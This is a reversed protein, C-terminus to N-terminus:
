RNKDQDLLATAFLVLSYLRERVAGIREMNPPQIPTRTTQNGVFLGRNIEIMLGVYNPSGPLTHRHADSTYHRLIYGGYFPQNLQVVPVPEASVPELLSLDAFLEHAKAGVMRVFEPPATLKGRGPVYEGDPGGNNSICILPRPQGPDGYATPGQQAMNHCDLFLTTRGAKQHLLQDLSDHYPQWYRELLRRKASLDLPTRYIPDGYSTQTKVPGDPNSLDDPARNVDILVRAINMVVKGATGPEAKTVMAPSLTPHDFDFLQEAWLDCENYITVDDINLIPRLEDPVDLGAHPISQIIPLHSSM